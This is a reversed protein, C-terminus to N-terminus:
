RTVQKTLEVIIRSRRRVYRHGRGRSVIRYRPFKVGEDVFIRSIVLEKKDMGFNNQASAMASTIVKRFMLAAKKQTLSLVDIARLATMGRVLDAVLRGKQPSIMADKLEARVVKDSAAAAPPQEKVVVSPKLAKLPKKPASSVEVLKEKTKHEQIVAM